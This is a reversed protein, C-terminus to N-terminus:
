PQQPYVGQYAICHMLGIQPPLISVPVALGSQGVTVTGVGGSITIGGVTAVQTSTQSWIAARGAGTGTSDSLYNAASSATYTSAIASSIGISVAGQPTGGGTPTYTAVHTHAPMQAPTIQISEAGYLGGPSVLPLGTGQGLGVMSRGRLDPLNFNTVGNGGYTVGILSYLVENGSIPLSQGAAQYYYEPCFNIATVCVTGIIPSTPCAQAQQALGGLAMLSAVRALQRTSGCLKNLM